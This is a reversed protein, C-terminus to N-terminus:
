TRNIGTINWRTQNVSSISWTCIIELNLQVCYGMHYGTKKKHRHKHFKVYKDPMHKNKLTKMHNHLIDYNENPDALLDHNLDKTINKDIMDDRLNEM